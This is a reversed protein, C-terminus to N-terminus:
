TSKQLAASNSRTVQHKSPIARRGFADDLAETKRLIAETEAEQRQHTFRTEVIELDDEFYKAYSM